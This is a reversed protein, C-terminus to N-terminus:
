NKIGGIEKALAELALAQHYQIDASVHYYNSTLTYFKYGFLLTGVALVVLLLPIFIDTAKSIVKQTDIVM